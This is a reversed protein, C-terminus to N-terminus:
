EIKLFRHNNIKFHYYYNLNKLKFVISFERIRQEKMIIILVRIYTTGVVEGLCRNTLQDLLELPPPFVLQSEIQDRNSDEICAFPRFLLSPPM